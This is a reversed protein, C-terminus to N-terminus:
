PSVAEGLVASELIRVIEQIADDNRYVDHASEVVLTSASGPLLASSLPVAGDTEPTRGPLRGAITHYPIGAPLLAESAKRVPQAAQLTWISNIDDQQYGLRLENRIAVPQARAIRRLAQMEPTRGGALASVFRAYWRMALPSGRHPAALFIARSIGPYPKFFLLRQVMAVDAPTGQLREQPVTFAASWLANGSDACLLRALVGGLSHGVLVIGNRAEDDHEPDLISFAADLYGALRQRAVFLPADSSYVVHWIQFNQRLEPRGWVANSLKAWALPSSGLGHVMVLPRKRPDYDEMLYVGARRGIDDGGLLGWIALRGVPSPAMGQAYFASSDEAVPVAVGSYTMSPTAWPDVIVLRAQVEPDGEIWATAPRFVGSYPLLTCAPRDDCRPSKLALPVGMGAQVFRTGDYMQMSVDAARVVRIKRALYPSLGRFEVRIEHGRARTRGAEWEDRGDLAQTLWADTCRNLLTITRPSADGLLIASHADRACALWLGAARNGSARKAQAAADRASEMAEAATSPPASAQKQSSSVCGITALSALMLAALITSRWM